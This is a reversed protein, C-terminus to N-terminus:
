SNAEAGAPLTTPRICRREPARTVRVKESAWGISCADHGDVCLDLVAGHEILVDALKRHNGIAALHLTTAGDQEARALELDGRM